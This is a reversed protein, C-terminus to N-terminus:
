ELGSPLRFVFLMGAWTHHYWFYGNPIGGQPAPWPAQAFGLCPNNPQSGVRPDLDVLSGCPVGQSCVFSIDTDPGGKTVNGSGIPGLLESGIVSMLDFAAQSGSFEIGALDRM